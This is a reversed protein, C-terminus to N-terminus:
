LNQIRSKLELWRLLRQMTPSSFNRLDPVVTPSFHVAANQLFAAHLYDLGPHKHIGALVHRSLASPWEWGERLLADRNAHATGIDMSRLVYAELDNNKLCNLMSITVEHPPQSALFAAIGREWAAEALANGLANLPKINRNGAKEFMLLIDDWNAGNTLTEWALPHLVSALQCFWSEAELLGQHESKQSLGFREHMIEPRFFSDPERPIQLTYTTRLGLLTKQVRVCDRLGSVAEKFLDTTPSCLLISAALSKAELQAPKLATKGGSFSQWVSEVFATEAPRPRNKLVKLFAVRERANATEWATQVLQFSQEPDRERLTELWTQREAATGEQWIEADPREDLFAWNAHKQRVWHARQGAVPRVKERLPKFGPQLCTTMAPVLLEPPLVFGRAGMKQFFLGLLGANQDDKELLARLVSAWNQPLYPKTEVPATGLAPLPSGDAPLGGNQYALTLAAARFFQAEANGAEAAALATRVPYPLAALPLESKETGLLATKVLVAWAASQRLLVPEPLASPAPSETPAAISIYQGEGSVIGLPVAGGRTRLLFITTPQGGTLCLLQLTSQEGFVPDIPVHSGRNDSIYYTHQNQSFTAQALCQPVRDAWPNRAFIEALHRQAAAWDSLPAFTAALRPAGDGQSRILARMPTRSPFFALEAQVAAGPLLLTPLPAHRHGFDLILAFRNSRSGWLWHRCITLEDEQEVQRALVLWQDAVTETAPNQLLEDRKISWGLKSRVDDQAAAPLAELRDFAELLLWTQAANELAESHWDDGRFYNIKLFSRVQNALGGAKADVMRAATKEWFAPGKTPLSIFGGRLLDALWTKLEAAGAQVSALRKEESKKSPQAQTESPNESTKQVPKATQAESKQQRKDLWERVWEPEDSKERFASPNRSFCLMLGLGHKCPFKRSPCSCKFALSVLDVAARYPESGSGQVEGWVARENQRLTPWKRENALDRGSKLASADPALQNIQEESYRIM